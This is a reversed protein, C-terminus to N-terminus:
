RGWAVISTPRVEVVVPSGKTAMREATELPPKDPQYRRVQEASIRVYARRGAAGSIVRASGRALIGRKRRIDSDVEVSARRTRKINAVKHDDAQAGVFFRRGDWWFWAPVVHAAGDEDVTALRCLNPEALFDALADPDAAWGRM